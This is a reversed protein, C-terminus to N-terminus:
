ATRGKYQWGDSGGSRERNPRASRTERTKRMSSFFDGGGEGSNSEGDEWLLKPRHGLRKMASGVFSEAESEDLGLREAWESLSEFDEQAKSM